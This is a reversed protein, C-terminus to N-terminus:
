RLKLTKRWYGTRPFSKNTNSKEQRKDAIKRKYNLYKKHKGNKSIQSIEKETKGIKTLYTEKPKKQIHLTYSCLAYLLKPKRSVM